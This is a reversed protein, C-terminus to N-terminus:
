IKRFSYLFKYTKNAMLKESFNLSRKYALQAKRYRLEKSKIYKKIGNSISRPKYCNVLIGGNGIMSKMPELNSCVIPLRCAMGELLTIAFNECTSNFIFIDQQRCYSLLKKRKIRDKFNIDLNNLNQNSMDLKLKNIKKFDGICTLKINYKNSLKKIAKFLLIHNKYKEFDSVYVLKNYNNFSKKIKVKEIGHPIIKVKKAKLKIKKLIFKKLFNSLFIIGDAKKLSNILFIKLLYIRIFEYSFRYEKLSKEDFPLFNQPIVITPKFNIFYYGCTVFLCNVKEKILIKKLFFIQWIMRFIVNSNLLFHTKKIINKTKKIQVLTKTPAYIIVKKIEREYKFYKSLSILHTLAGGTKTSSADILLKM